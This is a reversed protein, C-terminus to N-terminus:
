GRQLDVELQAWAELLTFCSSVLFGVQIEETDRHQGYDGIGWLSDLLLYTSRRITIDTPRHQGTLQDLLRCQSGDAPIANFFRLGLM